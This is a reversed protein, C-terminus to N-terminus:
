AQRCLTKWEAPDFYHETWYRVVMIEKFPLLKDPMPRGAVEDVMLKPM